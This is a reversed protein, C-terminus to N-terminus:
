ATASVETAWYSECHQAVEALILGTGAGIELVRRPQRELVHRVTRDVWERMEPRPIPRRTYSSQWVGFEDEPDDTDSSRFLM